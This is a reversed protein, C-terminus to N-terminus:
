QRKRILRLMRADNGDLEGHFLRNLKDSQSQRHGDDGCHPEGTASGMLMTKLKLFPRARDIVGCLLDLIHRCAFGYDLFSAGTVDLKFRGVPVPKENAARSRAGINHLEQLYQLIPSGVLKRVCKAFVLLLAPSCPLSM